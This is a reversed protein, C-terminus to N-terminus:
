SELRDWVHFQRDHRDALSAPLPPPASYFSCSCCLLQLFLVGQYSLSFKSSHWLSILLPTLRYTWHSTQHHIYIFVNFKFPTRAKTNKFTDYAPPLSNLLVILRFLLMCLGKEPSTICNKLHDCLYLKFSFSHILLLVDSLSVFPSSSLSLLFFDEDAKCIFSYFNVNIIM